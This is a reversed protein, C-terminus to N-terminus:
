STCFYIKDEFFESNYWTTNNFFFISFPRQLSDLKINLVNGQFLM